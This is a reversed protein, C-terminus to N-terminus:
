VEIKNIFEIRAWPRYQEKEDAAIFFTKTVLNFRGPTIKVYVDTVEEVRAMISTGEVPKLTIIDGAKM